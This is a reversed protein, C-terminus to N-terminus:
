GGAGPRAAGGLLRVSRAAGESHDSGTRPPLSARLTAVTQRVIRAWWHRSGPRAPLHGAAVGSAPQRRPRWPTAIKSLSAVMVAVVPPRGASVPASPTPNSGV